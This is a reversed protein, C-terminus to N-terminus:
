EIELLKSTDNLDVGPLPEGANCVPLDTRPSSVRSRQHALFLRLADDMVKGLSRREEAALKKAEVLLHDSIYLTTKM